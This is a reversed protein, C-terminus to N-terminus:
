KKIEKKIDNIRDLCLIIKKLDEQNTNSVKVGIRRMRKLYLKRRKKFDDFFKLKGEDTLKNYEEINM